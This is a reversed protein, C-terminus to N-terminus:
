WKSNTLKPSDKEQALTGCVTNLYHSNYDWIHYSCGGSHLYLLLGEPAPMLESTRPADTTPNVTSNIPMTPAETATTIIPMTPAAIIHVDACQSVVSSFDDETDCTRFIDYEIIDLLTFTSSPQLARDSEFVQCSYNGPLLANAASNLLLISSFFDIGNIVDCSMSTPPNPTVEMSNFYWNLAIDVGINDVEV